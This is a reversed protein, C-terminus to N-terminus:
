KKKRSLRASRFPQKTGLTCIFQSKNTQIFGKDLIRNNVLRTNCRAYDPHASLNVSPAEEGRLRRSRRPPPPPTPVKLRASRWPHPVVVETGGRQIKVVLALLLFLATTIMNLVAIVMIPSLLIHCMMLIWPVFLNSSMM